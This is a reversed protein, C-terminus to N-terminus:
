PSAEASTYNSQVVSEANRSGSSNGSLVEIEARNLGLKGTTHGLGLLTGAYVSWSGVAKAFTAMQVTKSRESLPVPVTDHVRRIAQEYIREFRGL